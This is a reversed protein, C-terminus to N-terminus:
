DKLIKQSVPENNITGTVIYNGKPLDSVDLNLINKVLTFKLISGLSSYIKMDEIESGFIM